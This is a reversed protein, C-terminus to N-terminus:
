STPGPSRPMPRASSRTSPSPRSSTSSRATWGRTTPSTGTSCVRSIPRTAVPFGIMEDTLGDSFYDQPDDSLNAFPLVALRPRGNSAGPAARSILATANVAIDRGTDREVAGSREVPVIFRYGRRHLTEVYRPHDASDGLVNRLRKVAANLGHEFDVYTGDPWLRVRLEERTLLEGPRELMLLLLQLPQDQIRIRSPGKRLELSRLDLEFRGFRV